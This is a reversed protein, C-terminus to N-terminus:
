QAHKAKLNEVHIRDTKDCDEMRVKEIEAAIRDIDADSFVEGSARVIYSVAKQASFFLNSPAEKGKWKCEGVMVVMSTINKLDVDTVNSIVKVHKYNQRFPNQFVSKKGGIFQTWAAGTESGYITGGMNKTELVFIGGRSIVIHDIQTTDGPESEITVNELILFGEGSLRRSLEKSVFREGQKGKRRAKGAEHSNALLALVIVLSVFCLLFLTTVTM